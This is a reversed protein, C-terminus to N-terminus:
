GQLCIDAWDTAGDTGIRQEIRQWGSGDAALDAALDAAGDTAKGIEMSKDAKV